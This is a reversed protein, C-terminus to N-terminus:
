SWLCTSPNLLPQCAKHVPLFGHTPRGLDTPPLGISSPTPRGYHRSRPPRSASRAPLKSGIWHTAQRAAPTEDVFITREAAGATQIRGVLKTIKAIGKTLLGSDTPYKINAPAVTTDARLWSVDVLGREIATAILEANLAAITDPGIRTTLKMLTSPHPAGEGVPIRYFRLWSLSDTVESCVTEYGLRYRYKLFMLRLYTEIPISPRGWTPDFFSRFPEFFRDDDLLEDVAVLEPPMVLAEPPLLAEWLTPRDCVTRLM